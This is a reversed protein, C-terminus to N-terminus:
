TERICGSGVKPMVNSLAAATETPSTTTAACSTRDRAFFKATQPSECRWSMSLGALRVSGIRNPTNATIVPSSETLGYGQLIPLGAGYFVRALDTSLPAGGSVFYRIRGGSAAKWKAFVLNVALTHKFDLWPGIARGRSKLEAWEKAVEVSWSAFAAKVAGQREAREMAKTYIKEFLRPVSTLFHPRVDLLNQWPNLTRCYFITARGQLYLYFGSREFIHSLPLFSLVVRDSDVPLIGIVSVVNSVINGHTLMVGKPEGTTGSTYIITALTEATVSSRLTDYLNPEVEELGAAPSYSM